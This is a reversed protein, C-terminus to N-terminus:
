SNNPRNQRNMWDRILEIERASKGKIKELFEPLEVKAKLIKERQRNIIPALNKSGLSMWQGDRWIHQNEPRAHRAFPYKSANNQVVNVTPTDPHKRFVRGAMQVTPKRGSPRVFVTKLPCCDFGETLVGVNTLVQLKEERFDDIIRRRNRTMGTIGQAKIGKQRLLQACQMAQTIKPFYCVSLGWRDPDRMFAEAVSEADWEGQFMWQDFPALWGERILQHIGADKIVKQFMLKANDTRYPTATLGLIQEPQIAEHLMSASATADSHAEDIVIHTLDAHREPHRDFLSIPRIPVGFEEFEQNAAMMQDLLERRHAIWGVKAGQYAWHKAIRLAMLTKGSGCPSEIMCTKIKVDLDADLYSTAKDHIRQQYDRYELKM